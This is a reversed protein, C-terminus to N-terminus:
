FNKIRVDQWRDNHLLEAEEGIFAKGAEHDNKLWYEFWATMYPDGEGGMQEHDKGSRRAQM